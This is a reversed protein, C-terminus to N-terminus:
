VISADIPMLIEITKKRLVVLMHNTIIDAIAQREAKQAASGTVFDRSTVLQYLVEETPLSTPLLKDSRRRHQVGHSLIGAPLWNIYFKRKLLSLNSWELEHVGGLQLWRCWCRIGQEMFHRKLMTKPAHHNHFYKVVKKCEMAFNLLAEFPYGDPYDAVCRLTGIQICSTTIFLTLEPKLNNNEQIGSILLEAIKEV